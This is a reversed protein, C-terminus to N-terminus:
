WPGGRRVGARVDAAGHAAGRAACIEVRAAGSEMCIERRAAMSKDLYTKSDCPPCRLFGQHQSPMLDKNRLSLLSTLKPLTFPAIRPLGPVDASALTALPRPVPPRLVPLIVHVPLSPLLHSGSFTTSLSPTIRSLHNRQGKVALSCAGRRRSLKFGRVGGPGRGGFSGM